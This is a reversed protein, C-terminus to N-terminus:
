YILSTPEGPLPVRLSGSPLCFWGRFITKKVECSTFSHIIRYKPGKNSAQLKTTSHHKSHRLNWRGEVGWFYINCATYSTYKILNYKILIVHIQYSDHMRQVKENPKYLKPATKKPLKCVLSNKYKTSSMEVKMWCDGWFGMTRGVTSSSSPSVQVIQKSCHVLAPSWRSEAKRQPCRKPYLHM